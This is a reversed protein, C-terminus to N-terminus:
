CADKAELMQELREIVDPKAASRGTEWYCVASPSVGLLHALAQQTLGLHLRLDKLRRRPADDKHSEAIRDMAARHADKHARNYERQWAKAYERNKAYWARHAERARERGEETALRKRSYERQRAKYGESYKRPRDPLGRDRRMSARWEELSLPEDADDIAADFAELEALEEPSFIGRSM